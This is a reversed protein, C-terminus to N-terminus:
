KVTVTVAQTVSGVFNTATLTYTATKTPWDNLTAGYPAPNWNAILTSSTQGQYKREIKATEAPQGMGSEAYFELHTYAGLQIKLPQATLRATLRCEPRTPPLPTTPGSGCSACLIITLVLAQIKKM